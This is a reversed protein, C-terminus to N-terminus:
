CLVMVLNASSNTHFYMNVQVSGCGIIGGLMAVAASTKVEGSGVIVVRKGTKTEILAVLDASPMTSDVVVSKKPLSIKYNLVSAENSLVKSTKDVCNQCTMDVTLEIKTATSMM